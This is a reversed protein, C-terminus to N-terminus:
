ELICGAAMVGCTGLGGTLAARPRSRDEKLSCVEEGVGKGGGCFTLM